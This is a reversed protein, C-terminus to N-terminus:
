QSPSVLWSGSAYNYRALAKQYEVQAKILDVQAEFEYLERLNLRFLDGAGLELRIREARSLNGLSELFEQYFDIQKKSQELFLISAKIELALKNKVKLLELKQSILDNKAKQWQNKAELPFIPSELYLSARFNTEGGNSFSQSPTVMFDFRPLIQNRTFRVKLDKEQVKFKAIKLEPRQNLGIKIYNDTEKSFKELQILDVQPLEEILDELSPTYNRQKELWLYDALSVSKAQFDRFTETLLAKRKQVQSALEFLNIRPQAGQEVTKKILIKRSQALELLKELAKYKFGSAVWSWYKEAAKLYIQARKQALKARAEQRLILRKKLEARQKDISRDRLLPMRFNLDFQLDELSTLKQKKTLDFHAEKTSSFNVANDQPQSFLGASLEFGFPSQWVIEAANGLFDKRKNASVSKDLYDELRFRNALRPIFVARAIELEAQANANELKAQELEPFFFDISALVRKLTLKSKTEQVEKAYNKSCFLGLFVSVGLFNCAISIFVSTFVPVFFRNEQM